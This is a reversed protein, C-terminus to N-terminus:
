RFRQGYIQQFRRADLFAKSVEITTGDKCVKEVVTFIRKSTLIKEVQPDCVLKWTEHNEVSANQFKNFTETPNSQFKVLRWYLFHFSNTVFNETDSACHKNTSKM